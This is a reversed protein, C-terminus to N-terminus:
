RCESFEEISLRLREAQQELFSGTGAACVSNMSFDKINGDELIILKSDEGGLEIVTNVHPFLRKVSYSQSVIENIPKIKLASAIVRGASGTVSLSSEPFNEKIEELLKLAIRVPHGYHRVCHKELISALKNGNRDLVVLKVAVSGADLGVFYM